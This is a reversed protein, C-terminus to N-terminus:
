KVLLMKRTQVFKGSQIRYFYVGSTLSEANWNLEYVGTKKEENVLTAVESGLVDFIKVTVIGAQPLAYKITTSPNFPNPFNQSLEYRVPSQNNIEPKELQDNAAELSTVKVNFKLKLTKIAQMSEADTFVIRTNYTGEESATVDIEIELDKVTGAPIIGSKPYVSPGRDVQHIFEELSELESYISEPDTGKRYELFDGPNFCEANVVYSNGDISLIQQWSEGDDLSVEWVKTEPDFTPYGCDAFRYWQQFVKLQERLEIGDVRHEFLESNNSNIIKEDFSSSSVKSRISSKVEDYHSVILSSIENVNTNTSSNFYKLATMEAKFKEYSVYGSINEKGINNLETLFRDKEYLRFLLKDSGDPIVSWILASEGSNKITFAQTTIEGPVGSYDITDGDKFIILSSKADSVEEDDNTLTFKIERTKEADRSYLLKEDLSASEEEILGKFKVSPNIEKQSGKAIKLGSNSDQPLARSTFLVIVM